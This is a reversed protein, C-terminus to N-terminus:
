DKPLRIPRGNIFFTDGPVDRILHMVAPRINACDAQLRERAVTLIKGLMNRGMLTQANPRAGWFPDRYSLEVIARSGTDTLAKAFRRPHQALKVAITYAMAQVRVNDWNSIPKPGPAYAVRKADMGSKAGAIALQRAPDHPYKLAQYLGEPSQFTIENVKLPFGGTMNSLEGHADRSRMFAAAESATYTQIDADTLM